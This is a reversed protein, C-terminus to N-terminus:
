GDNYEAWVLPYEEKLWKDIPLEHPNNKDKLLVFWENHITGYGNDYLWEMLEMWPSKENNLPGLEIM